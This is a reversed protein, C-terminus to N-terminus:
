EGTRRKIWGVETEIVVSQVVCQFGPPVEALHWACGNGEGLNPRLYGHLNSHGLQESAVFVPGWESRSGTPENGISLTSNTGHPQPLGTGEGQLQFLAGVAM